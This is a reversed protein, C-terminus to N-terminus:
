CGEPRVFEPAVSPCNENMHPYVGITSYGPLEVQYKGIVQCYELNPDADKCAQPRRDKYSRDYISLQYVDKPTFENPEIELDGFMGGHKYFGIVFCSCVYNVGDSYEWGEKEVLALVGEISLNKKAAEYAVEHILLGKAGVRMNLAEGLILDVTSRSIKELISFVL